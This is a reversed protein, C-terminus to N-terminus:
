VTILFNRPKLIFAKYLKDKHITIYNDFYMFNFIKLKCCIIIPIVFLINKITKDNLM